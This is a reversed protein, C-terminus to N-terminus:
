DRLVEIDVGEKDKIKIIKSARLDECLGSDKYYEVEHGFYDMAEKVNRAPAEGEPNASPAVLPGTKKILDILDQKDPVRFAIGKTGKHLYHLDISDPVPIVISVKGPWYMSAAKKFDQSLTIGFSEIDSFDSVLVIVPKLPNRNKINYIRDVVHEDKALGVIGYLTDTRIVAVGKDQIIKVLSKM